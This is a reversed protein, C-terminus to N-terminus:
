PSDCYLRMHATQEHTHPSAQILTCQDCVLVHQVRPLATAGLHRHDHAPGRMWIRVLMGHSAM